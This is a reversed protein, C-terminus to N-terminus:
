AEKEEEPPELRPILPKPILPIPTYESKEAGPIPISNVMDTLSKLSNNITDILGNIPDVTFGYIGEIIGNFFDIVPNILDRFFKGPDDLIELLKVALAGLIINKFFDMIIDFIGKFPKAIKEGVGKFSNLIKSESGKERERKKGKEAIKRATEAANDKLKEQNTLTLLISQLTSEISSLTKSISSGQIKGKKVTDKVEEVSDSVEETTTTESGFGFMKQPSTKPRYQSSRTGPLSRSKPKYTGGKTQEDVFSSTKVKKGKVKFRGEKRKIRKYEDTLKETESSAMKTSNMRGITMAEKLLSKYEDYDLDYVDELGLLRLIIEDITEDVLKNGTSEYVTKAM